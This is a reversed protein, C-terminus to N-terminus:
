RGNRTYRLRYPGGELKWEKRFRAQEEGVSKVIEDQSVRWTRELEGEAVMRGQEETKLMEADEVAARADKSWQDQTHLRRQFAYPTFKNKRDVALNSTPAGFRGLKKTPAATNPTISAVVADTIPETSTSTSAIKGQNFKSSSDTDKKTGKHRPGYAQERRNRLKRSADALNGAQILADMPQLSVSYLAIAISSPHIPRVRPFDDTLLDDFKCSVHSSNISSALCPDRADVYRM